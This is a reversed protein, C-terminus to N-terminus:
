DVALGAQHQELVSRLKHLGIRMRGKVTGLPVEMLQAIQSHTYGQFYALEITERQEPPLQHLASRVDEGTLTDAVERWVDVSDAVDLGAELAVSQPRVQRSRLKDICRNHVISLLWSRPSSRERQYTHASRWVSLFAEQVVDEAETPNGLTRLALSYALVRHRDYLQELARVDRRQISAMLEVDPPLDSSM